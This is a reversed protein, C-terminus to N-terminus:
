TLPQVVSASGDPSLSFCNAIELLILMQRYEVNTTSMQLSIRREITWCIQKNSTKHKDVNHSVVNASEFNACHMLTFMWLLFICVTLFVYSKEVLIEKITSDM